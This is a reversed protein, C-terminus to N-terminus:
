IHIVVILIIEKNLHNKLSYIKLSCNKKKNKLYITKNNTQQKLRISLTANGNNIDFLKKENIIKVEQINNNFNNKKLNSLNNSIAYKNKSSFITKSINRNVRYITKIINTHTKNIINKSNKIIVPINNANKNASSKTSKTPLIKIVNNQYIMKNNKGILDYNSNPIFSKVNLSDMDRSEDIQKLISNM